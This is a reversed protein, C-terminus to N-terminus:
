DLPPGTGWAGGCDAVCANPLYILYFDTPNQFSVLTGSFSGYGVPIVAEIQMPKDTPTWCVHLTARGDPTTHGSALTAGSESRVRLDIPIGPGKKNSGNWDVVLIRADFCRRQDQPSPTLVGTPPASAEPKKPPTLSLAAFSLLLCVTRMTDRTGRGGIEARARPQPSSWYNYSRRQLAAEGRQRSPRAPGEAKM